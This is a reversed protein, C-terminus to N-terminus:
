EDFGARVEADEVLYPLALQQLCANFIQVLDCIINTASPDKPGSM